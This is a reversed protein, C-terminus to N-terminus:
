EHEHSFRATVEIGIGVGVRLVIEVGVGVRVEPVLCALQSPADPEIVLGHRSTQLKPHVNSASCIMVHSVVARVM